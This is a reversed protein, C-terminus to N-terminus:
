SMTILFPGIRTPEESYLKTLNEDDIGWAFVYFFAYISPTEEPLGTGAFDKDDSTIDIFSLYTRFGLREIYRKLDEVTAPVPTTSPDALENEYFIGTDLDFIIRYDQNRRVASTITYFENFPQVPEAAGMFLRYYEHGSTGSVIPYSDTTAASKIVPVTLVDAYDDDTPNGTEFLSYFVDYGRIADHIDPPSNQEGPHKVGDLRDDIVNIDDIDEPPYLYIITDIGCSMSLTFVIIILFIFRSNGPKGAKKKM